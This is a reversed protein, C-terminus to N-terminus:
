EAGPKRRRVEYRVDPLIQVKPWKDCKVWNAAAIKEDDTLDRDSTVYLLWDGHGCPMLDAQITCNNIVIWDIWDTSGPAAIKTILM